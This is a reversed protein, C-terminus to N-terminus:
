GTFSLAERQLALHHFGGAPHPRWWDAVWLPLLLHHHGRQSSSGALFGTGGSGGPCVPICPGLIFLGGGARIGDAECVKVTMLTYIGHAFFLRSGGGPKRAIRLDLYRIGLECQDQLVSQQSFLYWLNSLSSLYFLTYILDRYRHPQGATFAPDPGAPSCDTPWDWSAPSLGSCRPPCMWASLCATM